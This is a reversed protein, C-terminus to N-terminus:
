IDCSRVQSAETDSACAMAVSFNLFIAGQILFGMDFMDLRCSNGRDSREPPHVPNGIEIGPPTSDSHWSKPEAPSSFLAQILQAKADLESRRRAQQGGHLDSSPDILRLWCWIRTHPSSELAEDFPTGHHYDSRTGPARLGPRVDSRPSCFRSIYVARVPHSRSHSRSQLSTSSQRTTTSWRGCAASRASYTNGSGHQVPRERAPLVGQPLRCRAHQMQYHLYM